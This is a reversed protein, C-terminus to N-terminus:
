LHAQRRDEAAARHAGASEDPAPRFPPGSAAARRPRQDGAAPLRAGRLRAAGEAGARPEGGAHRHPRHRHARRDGAAGSADGDAPEQHDSDRGPHGPRVQARAAARLRQAGRRLQDTHHADRRQRRTRLRSACRVAGRPHLAGTEGALSRARLHPLRHSHLTQYRAHAGSHPGHGPANQRPGHRRLPPRGFNNQQLLWLWQYGTQQYGYLDMGLDAPPPAASADHLADFINFAEESAVDGRFVARGRISGRVRLYELRTLLLRNEGFFRTGDLWAFQGDMPDLWLDGKVLVRQKKKRAEAIEHATVEEFTIEVDLLDNQAPRFDFTVENAETRAELGREALENRHKKVFSLVDAEEIITARDFPLGTVTRAAFLSTQGAIPDAFMPPASRATTFTAGDLFYRGFRPLADRDRTDRGILQPTFRLKNHEFSIRLTPTLLEPVVSFGSAAAIGADVLSEVAGRPVDIREEDILLEAAGDDIRLRAGPADGHELFRARSWRFWPSSEWLLRQSGAGRKVLEQEQGTLTYKRLLEDRHDSGAAVGLQRGELFSEWGIARWFSAEYRENALRGDATSASILVFGLHRCLDGDRLQESCTCFWRAIKAAEVVVVPAFTRRENEVVMATYASRFFLPSRVVVKSGITELQRITSPSFARLYRSPVPM